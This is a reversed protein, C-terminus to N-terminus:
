NKLNYKTKLIVLIGFETRITMLFLRVQYTSPQIAEFYMETEKEAYKESIIEGSNNLIQVVYPFKKINKFRLKLNGFDSLAEKTYEFKLSDTQTNYDDVIAGPLLEM